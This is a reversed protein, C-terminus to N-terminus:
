GDLEGLDLRRGLERVYDAHTPYSERNEEIQEVLLRRAAQAEGRCALIIACVVRAPGGGGLTDNRGALEALIFERSRFRELFPIANTELRHRVDAVLLPDESVKWWLDQGTGLLTGIRARICCDSEQPWPRQLGAGRKAAVEPVYIGVNITFMGRPVERFWPIAIAGPPDVRSMQLNIVQTLGDATSRNFTRGRVRFGLDELFPGLERQIGDMALVFTSKPM